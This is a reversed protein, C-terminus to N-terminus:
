PPLRDGSVQSRFAEQVQNWAVIDVNKLRSENCVVKLDPLCLRTLFAAVDEATGPLESTGVSLTLLRAFIMPFHQDSTPPLIRSDFHLGLYALHPMNSPFAALLDIPIGRSANADYGTQDEDITGWLAEFFLYTLKPWARGM